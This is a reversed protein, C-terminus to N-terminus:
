VVQYVCILLSYFMSPCLITCSGQIINKLRKLPLVALVLHMVHATHACWQLTLLWKPMFTYRVISLTYQEHGSYLRTSM